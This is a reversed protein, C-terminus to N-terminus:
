WKPLLDVTDQVDDWLDAAGEKSSAHLLVLVQGYSPMNIISQFLVWRDAYREDLWVDSDVFRGARDGTVAELPLERGKDLWFGTQKMRDSRRVWKVRNDGACVRIIAVPESTIEILQITTATLTTRYRDDALKGLMGLTPQKGKTQRCFDDVPMLLKAAFSNAEQEINAPHPGSSFDNLDAMSCRLEKKNKHLSYHGLEHGITFNKRGEEKIDENYLIAKLDDELFLGGQFEHGMSEGHVKIGLGTAIKRCNVPFWESEERTARWAKTLQIAAKTPTISM